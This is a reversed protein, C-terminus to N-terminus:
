HNWTCHLRIIVDHVFEMICVAPKAGWERHTFVENYTLVGFSTYDFQVIIIRPWGFIPEYNEYCKLFYQHWTYFVLRRLGSEFSHINHCQIKNKISATNETWFNYFRYFPKSQNCNTYPQKSQHLKISEAARFFSMKSVSITELWNSVFMIELYKWTYVCASCIDWVIVLCQVSWCWEELNNIHLVIMSIFLLNWTETDESKHCTFYIHIIIILSIGKLQVFPGDM